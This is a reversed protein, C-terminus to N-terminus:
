RNTYSIYEHHVCHWSSACSGRLDLFSDQFQFCRLSLKTYVIRFRRKGKTKSKEPKRQTRAEVLPNM